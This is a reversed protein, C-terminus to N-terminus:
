RAPHRIDPGLGSHGGVTQLPLATRPLDSGPVAVRRVVPCTDVGLYVYGGAQLHRVDERLGGAFPRVHPLAVDAAGAVGGSLPDSHRRPRVAAVHVRLRGQPTRGGPCLRAGGEPQPPLCHLRIGAPIDDIRCLDVYQKRRRGPLVGVFRCFRCLFGVDSAPEPGM